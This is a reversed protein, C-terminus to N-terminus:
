DGDSGDRGDRPSQQIELVLRPAREENDSFFAAYVPSDSEVAIGHNDEPRTAWSRVLSDVGDGEFVWEKEATEVKIPVPAGLKPQREFNALEEDWAGLVPRIWVQGEGECWAQTLMIRADIRIADIGAPLLDRPWRLLARQRRGEKGSVYLVNKQGFSTRRDREKESVFTGAVPALSWKTPWAPERDDAAFQLEGHQFMSLWFGMGRSGSSLRVRVRNWGQGLRAEGLHANPRPAGSNEHVELCREGNVWVVGWYDPGFGWRALRSYPSFVWSEALCQYGERLQEELKLLDWLRKINLLGNPDCEASHRVQAADELLEDALGRHEGGTPRMVDSIRWLRIFRFADKAAVVKEETHKLEQKFEAHAEIGTLVPPRAAAPGTSNFTVTLRKDVSVGSFSRVLARYPGGTERAIDLGKLVTRGNVAIDFVREGPAAEGPEAFHLRITYPLPEVPSDPPCLTLTLSKVGKIGSAAIWRPGDGKVRSPHFRFLGPEEPELQLPIPRSPGGVVPYELWMTEDEALRDGPAGFNLGIRRVVGDVSRLSSFTWMEVEPTHVLALSSQNQYSCLCTRTYDPASLVGDAPVLNSTCSSKFGGFNGTGSDAHLDYYGAAASRFTLLHESAIATNCGYNRRFNWPEERDNFPNRRMKVAGTLLSFANGQAIITDGHLIVPGGYTHPEDWLVAGDRGRYAIIRQGPEDRLMDRSRRGAQVLIDHEKSYGLWTGFINESSRWLERGTKLNLAVIKPHGSLEKGRRRMANVVPDPLRDILFLRGGGIAIANHRISHEAEWAWMVDGTHRNMAVLRKSATADFNYRGLPGRQKKPLQPYWTELLIRKLERRRREAHYGGTKRLQEQRLVQALTSTQTADAESKVAEPIHAELPEENLLKNLNWVLFAVENGRQRQEQATPAAQVPEQRVAVLPSLSEPIGPLADDSDDTLQELAELDGADAAEDPDSRASAVTREEPPKLVNVIRLAPLSDPKPLDAAVGPSATAAIQELAAQADAISKQDLVEFGVLGTLIERFMKLQEPTSVAFEAPTFYVNWLDLPNSGAVLVDNSVGIYGWQPAERTVPDPPLAFEAVTQGTTPDLRLCKGKYVVYVGDQLSVYNSGLSNAGPQHGTFSYPVGLGLLDAEWLVRGTYVDMARLIDMGEIFLRGGAVQPTPGHGHRPLIKEHTPGGFWLLGLPLKVLRDKSLVTNSADAYQHTWEAAGPLAGTRALRVFEGDQTVELNALGAAEAAQVLARRRGADAPLLAVGGYPRLSYHLRTVLAEEGDDEAALLNESAVLSAFYPPLSADSLDGRIVHVRAGYLGADDLKRRAAAVRKEDPELVVVSLLSQAVLEEVLRGSGIGLALCYGDKVRARELIGRAKPTWTDSQQAVPEVPPFFTEPEAEREGFCYIRHQKTVVFLKGDAALMGCPTGDISMEAAVTATLTFPAPAAPGPGRAPVSPEPILPGPLDATGDDEEKDLSDLDDLFDADDGEEEGQEGANAVPRAAGAEQKEIEIVQILGEAGTYLRKGAKIYAQGRCAFELVQPFVTRTQADGKPGVFREVSPDALVIARLKQGDCFFATNDEVVPRTRLVTVATGDSTNFVMGSNMFHTDTAVVHYDGNSKNAAHHYYLFKGTERSLAAAVSRGNPVLLRDGSLALYGQPALGAFAPSTHPQLIYMSGTSDNRWLVKGTEADLAYVFTGMFPWISATFYVIGEQLVPGTRAPWASVLRKNGLLRRSTPGGRFKWIIEGTTVDLCYLYGDDCAVFARGNWAAPAFRIPGDAYFRWLEQGTDTNYATVRDSANSGVILRKGIAV